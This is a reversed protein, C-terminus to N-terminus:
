HFTMTTAECSTELIEVLVFSRCTIVETEIQNAISQVKLIELLVGIM